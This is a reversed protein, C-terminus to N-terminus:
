VQRKRTGDDGRVFFIVSVEAGFAARAMMHMHNQDLGVISGCRSQHGNFIFQFTGFVSFSHACEIRTRVAVPLLPPARAQWHRADALRGANNKGLNEHVFIKLWGSSVSRVETECHVALFAIGRPWADQPGAAAHFAGSTMRLFDGDEASRPPVELLGRFTWATGRAEFYDRTGWQVLMDIDSHPDFVDDDRDHNYQPWSRIGGTIKTWTASKMETSSSRISDEWEKQDLRRSRAVYGRVSVGLM